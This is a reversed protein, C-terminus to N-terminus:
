RFWSEWSFFTPSGIELGEKSEKKVAGLLRLLHLFKADAQFKDFNLGPFSINQNLAAFALPYSASSWDMPVVSENSLRMEKILEITLDWYSQSSKMLYPEIEVEPYALQLGSAFQTTLSCDVELHSPLSVPGQVHLHNGELSVKGGLDNMLKIFSDWPRKKLREGLILVYPLSGKMLLCALFRATTGGEGVSIPPRVKTECEPFSNKIEVRNGSAHIELGAAKLADVLLIVDSSKPLDHIVKPTKAVAGLVLARNAFSKSRPIVLTSKLIGKNILLSTM